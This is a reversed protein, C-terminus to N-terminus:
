SGMSQIRLSGKAPAFVTRNPYYGGPVTVGAYVISSPGMLTGPSTVSNCGTEARDGLVAGLKRRGTKHRKRDHKIVISGPIMKLNALRTGAGLNVDNGLISDGIYAFHAAKAGDLMISGKIETAHGVVCRNGVLCNGRVYAGQRVEAESGIITPGKILAGPEVITGPGIIIKDDFLFTGPLIVAADKLVQSKRLVQVSGKGAGTKVELDNRLKGEYIVLPKDVQGSVNGLPWSKQFLSALYEPLRDLATWVAKDASFIESHDFNKLDFFEQPTFM